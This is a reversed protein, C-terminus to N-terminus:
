RCVRYIQAAVALSFGTIAFLSIMLGIWFVAKSEMFIYMLVFGAVFIIAFTTIILSYRVTDVAHRIAQTPVTGPGPVFWRQLMEASIFHLM